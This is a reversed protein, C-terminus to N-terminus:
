GANAQILAQASTTPAAFDVAPILNVRFNQGSFIVGNPGESASLIDTFGTNNAHSKIISADGTYDKIIFIEKTGAYPAQIASGGIEQFLINVPGAGQLILKEFLIPGANERVILTGGSWTITNLSVPDPEKFRYFAGAGINLSQGNNASTIDTLAFVTSASLLLLASFKTITHANKM